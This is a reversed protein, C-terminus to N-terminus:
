NMEKIEEATIEHVANVYKRHDGLFIHLFPINIRPHIGRVLTNSHKDLHMWIPVNYKNYSDWDKHREENDFIIIYVRGEGLRNFGCPLGLFFRGAGSVFTGASHNGCGIGNEDEKFCTSYPGGSCGVCQYEKVAEGRNM